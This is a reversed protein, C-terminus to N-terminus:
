AGAAVVRNRGGAKAQYLAVDARRICDDITMEPTLPCVGISVTVRIRQDGVTLPADAFGARIKEAVQMAGTLATEPLLILLEEGGWRAIVDQDRLLAKLQRAIDMLVKDGTEHGFNDNIDKFHDVDILLVSSGTGSRQIRKVEHDLFITMARRNLLDTLYDTTAAKALAEEVRKREEIENLLQANVEAIEATRERVRRELSIRADKLDAMGQQNSQHSENLRSSMRNFARALEGIEDRTDSEVRGAFVGDAIEATREVLLRIPRTIRKALWWSFLYALIISFILSIAGAIRIDLFKRRVEDARMDIGVLYEGGGNKLPAYGSLFCGWEDCAIDSDAVLTTFGRAMNPVDATYRRGPLAQDPSSDSDIVFIIDDGTKRMVYIFAIDQNADEFARLLALYKQYAQSGVDGSTRIGALDAADIVRSIIAASNKLRAQLSSFLNNVASQYFFTGISGSVMIVALFHTYFLKQRITLRM